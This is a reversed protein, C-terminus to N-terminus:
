PVLQVQNNTDRWLLDIRTGSRQAALAPGASIDGGLSTWGTWGSLSTWANVWVANDNGRVALSLRTGNNSGSRSPGVRCGCPRPFDRVVRTLLPQGGCELSNTVSVM